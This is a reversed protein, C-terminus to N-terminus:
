LKMTYVTSCNGKACKSVKAFILCWSPGQERACRYFGTTLLAYDAGKRIRQKWSILRASSGDDLPRVRDSDSEGLSAAKTTIANPGDDGVLAQAVVVFDRVANQNVNPAALLLLLALIMATSHLAGKAAPVSPSVACDRGSARSWGLPM